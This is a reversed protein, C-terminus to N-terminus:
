RHATCGQTALAVVLLPGDRLAEGGRSQQHEVLDIGAARALLRHRADLQRVVRQQGLPLPQARQGVLSQCSPRRCRISVHDLLL